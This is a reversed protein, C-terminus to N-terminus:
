HEDKNVVARIADGIARSAASKNKEVAPAFFPHPKTGHHSMARKVLFTVSNVRQDAIRLKKRVWERIEQTPPFHARSGYEVAAAYGRQAEESFFGIDVAGADGPVEQVRGSASLKRSNNLTGGKYGATRMNRKASAIIKMGAVEIGKKAALQIEDFRRDMNAFLRGEGEVWIESSSAM